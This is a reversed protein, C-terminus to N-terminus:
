SLYTVSSNRLKSFSLGELDPYRAAIDQGLEKLFMSYRRKIREVLSVIGVYASQASKDECLFSSSLIVKELKGDGHQVVM